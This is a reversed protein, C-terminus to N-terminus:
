NNLIHRGIIAFYATFFSAGLSACFAYKTTLPYEISVYAIVIALMILAIALGKYFTSTSVKAQVANARDNMNSYNRM